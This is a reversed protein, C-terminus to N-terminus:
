AVSLGADKWVKDIISQLELFKEKSSHRIKLTGLPNPKFRSVKAKLMIVKQFQRVPINTKRSWELMVRKQNLDPYLFLQGKIKEPKINLEELMFRRFLAIIRPDSNTFEISYIYTNKYRPDKRLKTGECVYLLAGALRLEKTTM